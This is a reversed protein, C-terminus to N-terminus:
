FPLNLGPPLSIGEEKDELKKFAEDFAAKILDQLGEVDEPDVCDPKITIEQLAKNGNLKVTILGNGSTGEAITNDMEEQMQAFQEQMQKMQKKQKAFGSGM